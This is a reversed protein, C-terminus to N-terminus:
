FDMRPSSTLVSDERDSHHGQQDFPAIELGASRADTPASAASQQCHIRPFSIAEIRPPALKERGGGDSTAAASPTRVPRIACLLHRADGWEGRSKGRQRSVHLSTRKSAGAGGGRHSTLSIIM